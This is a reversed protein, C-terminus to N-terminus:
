SKQDAKVYVRRVNRSIRAENEKGVETCEGRIKSVGPGTGELKRNKVSEPLQCRKGEQNLHSSPKPRIEHRRKLWVEKNEASTFSSESSGSARPGRKAGGKTGGQVGRSSLLRSM